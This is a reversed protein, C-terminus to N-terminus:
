EPVIMALSDRVPVPRRSRTLYRQHGAPNTARGNARSSSQDGEEPDFWSRAAASAGFHLRELLGDRGNELVVAELAVPRVLLFAFQPEIGEVAVEHFAAVRLFSSAANAFGRNGISVIRSALKGFSM